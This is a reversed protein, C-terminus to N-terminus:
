TSPEPTAEGPAIGNEFPNPHEPEVQAVYQFLDDLIDHASLLDDGWWYYGVEYARDNQVASLTQWLPNALIQSTDGFLFIYDGDALSLEEASILLEPRGDLQELVYDYDASQAEPRPLGVSQLIADANTGALLLGIQDPFTRVLSITPKEDGLAAQLETVRTDYDAVLATATDSLGLVEGAFLLRSRWDGPAPTFLVTPAIAILEDFISETFFDSPGIILDPQSNLIAEVNPPYGTETASQMVSAFEAELEPHMRTYTSLVIEAGTVPMIGDILMLEMVTMDLPAIRQPNEPICLPDTALLEHDFLRFGPECEPTDQAAAPSVVLVFVVCLLLFRIARM